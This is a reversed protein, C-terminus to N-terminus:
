SVKIKGRYDLEPPYKGFEKKYGEILTEAIECTVIYPNKETL